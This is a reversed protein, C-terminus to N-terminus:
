SQLVIHQYSAVLLANPNSYSQLIDKLLIHINWLVGFKVLGALFILVVLGLLVLFVACNKYKKTQHLKELPM